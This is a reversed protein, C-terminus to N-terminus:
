RYSIWRLLERLSPPKGQMLIGVRFIRGAAWVMAAAAAFGFVLESIVEIWSLPEVAASVRLVLIFPTLPPIFTAVTAVIGSPDETVVPILLLPAMIILTVPGLLSQAETLDSVAAGVGAMMSAIMLYAMILCLVSVILDSVSVLDAAALMTLFIAAVVAYMTIMVLTVLGFGIIKGHILEGPGCASLLVEIVKSSKEEITSTLLYNGGTLTTLWILGMAVVPVVWRTWQAETREGGEHDLRVTRLHPRAVLKRITAPVLDQDLLRANVAARRVSTELLELHSNPMSPPVILDFRAEDDENTTVVVAALWTEDRIRGRISEATADPIAIIKLATTDPRDNQVEITAASDLIADVLEATDGDAPLQLPTPAAPPQLTDTLAEILHSGGGHIALTGDMPHITPKLFLDVAITVGAFLLPVVVAGFFFAKTLVTRRFERGAIIWTRNM